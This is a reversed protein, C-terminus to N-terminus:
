AAGADGFAWMRELNYFTRVEPRFL